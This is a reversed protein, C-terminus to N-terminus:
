DVALIEVPVFTPRLARLWTYDAFEALEQVNYLSPSFSHDALSLLQPALFAVAHEYTRALSRMTPEVRLTEFPRVFSRGLRRFVLVFVALAEATTSLLFDDIDRIASFM